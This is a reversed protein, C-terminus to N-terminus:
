GRTTIFLKEYETQLHKSDPTFRASDFPNWHDLTIWPYGDLVSVVPDISFTTGRVTGSSRGDSTRRLCGVVSRPPVLSGFSRRHPHGTSVTSRDRRIARRRTSEKSTTGPSIRRCRVSLDIRTVPSIAGHSNGNERECKQTLVELLNGREGGAGHECIGRVRRAVSV